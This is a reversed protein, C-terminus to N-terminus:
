IYKDADLACKEGKQNQGRSGAFKQQEPTLCPCGGKCTYGGSTSCCEPKCENFAFFFKSRPGQETGDVPPSSPDTSDPIAPQYEVNPDFLGQMVVMKDAPILKYDAAATFRELSRKSSGGIYVYLLMFFVLLTLILFYNMNFKAKSAM